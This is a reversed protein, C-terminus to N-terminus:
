YEKYEVEEKFNEDITRMKNNLLSAVQELDINKMNTLICKIEDNSVILKVVNGESNITRVVKKVTKLSIEKAEKGAEEYILSTGSIYYYNPLVRRQEVKKPPEKEEKVEAIVEKLVDKIAQKIDDEDIAVKKNDASTMTSQVKKVIAETMNPKVTQVTKPAVPQAPAVTQTPAIPATPAVPAVPAITQASAVPKPPEVKAIVPAKKVAQEQKKAPEAEVMTPAPKVVPKVAPETKKEIIIPSSSIPKVPQVPQPAVPAANNTQVTVVKKITKVVPEAKEEPTKEYKQADSDAVIKLQQTNGVVGIVSTKFDEEGDESTNKKFLEYLGLICLILGIVPCIFIIKPVKFTTVSTANESHYYIPVVDNENVDEKTNFEYGYSTGDVEYVVKINNKGTGNADKTVKTVIADTKVLDKEGSVIYICIVLSLLLLIGIVLFLVSRINTERDTM